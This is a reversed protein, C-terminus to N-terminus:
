NVRAYLACDRGDVDYGKMRECEMKFGLLRAWRHAEIFDCDVTIEVRRRPFLKFARRATRTIAMMHDKADESMLCWLISRGPWIDSYGACFIIKGDEEGSYCPGSRLMAEAFLVPNKISSRFFEQKPQVKINVVHDVEFPIINM